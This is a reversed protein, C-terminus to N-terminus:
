LLVRHRKCDIFPRVATRKRWNKLTRGPRVIRLLNVQRAARSDVRVFTPGVAYGRKIEGM